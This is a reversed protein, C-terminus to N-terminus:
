PKNYFIWWKKKKGIQVHFVELLVILVSAPFYKKIDRRGLLPLSLWSVIVIAINICWQTKLPM